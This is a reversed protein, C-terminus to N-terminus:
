VEDLEGEAYVRGHRKEDKLKGGYNKILYVPNYLGEGTFVINGESDIINIDSVNVDDSLLVPNIGLKRIDRLHNKVTEMKGFATITGNEVLELMRAIGKREDVERIVAKMKEKKLKGFNSKDIIEMATNYKVYHGSGALDSVYSELVYAGVEPIILSQLDRAPIEDYDEYGSLNGTKKMKVLISNLKGKKVQIEIRLFDLEPSNSGLGEREVERGKHYININLSKGKYYIYDMPPKSAGEIDEVDPIDPEDDQIEEKAAASDFYTRDFSGKRLSYGRDLLMLYLDPNDWIDFAFDIRRALFKNQELWDERLRNWAKCHEDDISEMLRSERQADVRLQRNIELCPILSLIKGYIGRVLDSGFSLIDLSHYPDGGFMVSPNISLAIMYCYLYRDDKPRGEMQKEYIKDKFKYLRIMQFGQDSYDTTWYVGTDNWPNYRLKLTSIVKEYVEKTIMRSVEFTHIM